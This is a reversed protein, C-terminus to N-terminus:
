HYHLRQGYFPFPNIDDWALKEIDNSYTKDDVLCYLGVISYLAMLGVDNTSLITMYYTKQLLLFLLM